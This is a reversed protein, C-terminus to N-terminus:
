FNDTIHQKHTNGFYKSKPSKLIEISSGNKFGIFAGNEDSKALCIEDKAKDSIQQIFDFLVQIERSNYPTMVFHTEPELVCKSYIWIYRIFSKGLRGRFSMVNSDKKSIIKLIMKQYATLDIGLYDKVFEDPHSLYEDRIRLLYGSDMYIDGKDVLFPNLVKEIETM